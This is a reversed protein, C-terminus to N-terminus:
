PKAGRAAEILAKLLQDGDEARKPLRQWLERFRVGVVQEVRNCLQDFSEPLAEPGFEAFDMAFEKSSSAIMGSNMQYCIILAALGHDIAIRSGLNRHYFALNNHSLSIGSPDGYLYSHRLSIEEFRIAQDVQSQCFSLDALAGFGYSIGKIDKEKDFTDKCIRIITSAEKFQKLRLHPVYDNFKIKALELNTAGRAEAFAAMEVNYGMNRM